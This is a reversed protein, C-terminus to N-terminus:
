VEYVSMLKNQVSNIMIKGAPWNIGRVRGYWLTKYTPNTLGGNAGCLNSLEM